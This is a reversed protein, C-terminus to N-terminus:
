RPTPIALRGAGRLLLAIALPMVINTMLPVPGRIAGVPLVTLVLSGVFLFTELSFAWNRAVASLREFDRAVALLVAALLITALGEIRIGHEVLGFPLAGLGAVLFLSGQVLLLVRAIESRM